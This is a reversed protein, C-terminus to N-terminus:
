GALAQLNSEGIGRMAFFRATERAIVEHAHVSEPDGPPAFLHHVAAGGARAHRELAAALAGGPERRAPRPEEGGFALRAAPERLYARLRLEDRSLQGARVRASLLAAEDAVAGTDRARREIARLEDDVM